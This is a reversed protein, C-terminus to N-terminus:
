LPHYSDAESADSTDEDVTAFVDQKDTSGSSQSLSISASLAARAIMRMSTSSSGTAQASTTHSTVLNHDSFNMNRGFRNSVTEPVPCGQQETSIEIIINLDNEDHSVNNEPDQTTFKAAICSAECCACAFASRLSLLFPYVSTSFVYSVLTGVLLYQGTKQVPQLSAYLLPVSVCISLILPGLLALRLFRTAQLLPISLVVTNEKEVDEGRKDKEEKKREIFHLLYFMPFLAIVGTLGVVLFADIIDLTASFVYIKLCVAILGIACMAFTGCVTFFVDGRTAVAIVLIYGTMAAFVLYAVPWALQSQILPYTVGVSGVVTQVGVSQAGDSGFSQVVGAWRREIDNIFSPNEQLSSVNVHLSFNTCIWVPDYTLPSIQTNRVRIGLLTSAIPDASAWVLLTNAMTQESQQGSYLDAMKENYTRTLQDALCSDNREWGRALWLDDRNEEVYDCLRVQDRMLANDLVSQSDSRLPSIYDAFQTEDVIVDVLSDEYEKHGTMGWCVTLMMATRESSGDDVITQSTTPSIIPAATPPASYSVTLLSSLQSLLLPNYYPRQGLITSKHTGLVGLVNQLNSNAPFLQPISPEIVYAMKSYYYTLYLGFLFLYVVVFGVMNAIRNKRCFWNVIEKENSQPKLGRELLDFPTSTATSRNQSGSGTSSYGRSSGSSSGGISTLGLRSRRPHQSDESQSTSLRRSGVPLCAEPVLTPPRSRTARQAPSATSGETGSGAAAGTANGTSTPLLRDGNALRDNNHPDHVMNQSSRHSAVIVMTSDGTSEISTVTPVGSVLPTSHTTTCKATTNVTTTTTGDLLSCPQSLQMDLDQLQTSLLESQTPTESSNTTAADVPPPLPLNSNQHTSTATATATATPDANASARAFADADSDNSTSSNDKSSIHSSINVSNNSLGSGIGLSNGNSM